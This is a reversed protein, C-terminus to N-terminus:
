CGGGGLLGRFIQGSKEGRYLYILPPITLDIKNKLAFELLKNIELPDINVNEGIQATGANGPAFFIKKVKPSQALKWGLAHERGGSGIVLIKM